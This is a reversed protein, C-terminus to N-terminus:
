ASRTKDAELFTARDTDKVVRWERQLYARLDSYHDLWCRAPWALVLFRVGSLQIRELQRIAAEEDDPRREGFRVLQASGKIHDRLHGDDVLVVVEGQPINEDIETRLLEASAQRDPQEDLQSRALEPSLLAIADALLRSTEEPDPARNARVEAYLTRAISLAELTERRAGSARLDVSAASHHRLRPDVFDDVDVTRDVGAIRALRDIEARWGAVFDEYIFVERTAGHTQRLAEVTYRLWLYVGKVPALGNRASLSASVEAPDRLCVVYRPEPLLRRWFPLTICTRPDKWGWVDADGFDRTLLENAQAELQTLSRVNEWGAELYPPRHWRGGLKGLLKESIKVFDKHEWHGRPNDRARIFCDAPGLNVGLRHLTGAILSTGSRHMGLVCVPQSVDV